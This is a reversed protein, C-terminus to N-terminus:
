VWCICWVTFFMGFTSWGFAILVIMCRVIFMLTSQQALLVLQCIILALALPLVCYGLVCVSQFFSRFFFVNVVSICWDTFTNNSCNSSKDGVSFKSCM